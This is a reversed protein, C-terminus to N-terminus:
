NLYCFRDHGSWDPKIQCQWGQAEFLAQVSAGQGTGIELWALGGRNLHTRLDTAIRAYYELGTPGSILATKPEWDRVESSLQAFEGEAVYPPNCVFFDCRKGAFPAFLDGQKFQVDVQSNKQATILAESSMDSLAVTLQPFRTKLALGICGSGCCMDWLVKNELPMEQLTQTITEVLIETELRPILVSRDVKLEIGAFIVRGAIYATPEHKARRAIASRLTPLESETLPRDFQLYLDLKKMNLADAIVEEAAPRPNEIGRQALYEASRKIIEILTIM